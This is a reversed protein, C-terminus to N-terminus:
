DLGSASALSTIRLKDLPVGRFGYVGNGFSQLDKNTFTKGGINRLVVRDQKGWNAIVFNQMHNFPGHTRTTNSFVFTDRVDDNGFNIVSRTRKTIAGAQDGFVVNDKDLNGRYSWSAAMARNIVVRNAIGDGKGRNRIKVRAVVPQGAWAGNGTLSLRSGNKSTRQSMWSPLNRVNWDSM